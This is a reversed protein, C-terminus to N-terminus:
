AKHSNNQIDAIADGYDDQFSKLEQEFELELQNADVHLQALQKNAQELTNCGFEEKLKKKIQDLGGKARDAATQAAAVDEKLKIFQKPDM